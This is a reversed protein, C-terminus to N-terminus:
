TTSKSLGPAKSVLFGYIALSSVALLVFLTTGAYWDSPNDTLPYSFVLLYVIRSVLDTLLGFRLWIVAFLGLNILGAVITLWLHNNANIGTVMYLTAIAAVAWRERRLILHSVVLLFVFFLSATLADSLTMCLQRIMGSVGLLSDLDVRVLPRQGLSSAILTLVVKVILSALGLVCGALIDRGVMPNRGHGALLRTWSVIKTPWSRRLLPEVSLYCCWAVASYGLLLLLNAFTPIGGSFWGILSICFLISALRWAGNLDGIGLRLHRRAMAVAGLLCALSILDWVATSTTTSSTTQTKDINLSVPRGGFSAAEIRILGLSNGSLSAEWAARQEAYPSPALGPRVSKLQAPDFGAARLLVTWDPPPRDQTVKVEPLIQLRRLYGQMDLEVYVEGPVIRPPDEPTTWGWDPQLRRSSERYWFWYLPQGSTAHKFGYATYPLTENYGFQALLRHARGALVQPSHPLSIQRHAMFRDSLLILTLLSLLVAALWTAGKAPSLDGVEQISAVMEPSPTVGSALATALPDSSFARAVEAASSPRNRPDKELCRLIMRGATPDLDPVFNSLPMPGHRELKHDAPRPEEEFAKQGAFLEYLVLGLSYLDSRISMEGNVAQEPSMYAPTGSWEHRSEQAPVAVGFDTIRARGREDIMVNSPKLDRHLIGAEHIASLGACLQWAINLAKTLPLRGERLLSRLDNGRIFEMCLFPRGHAEGVDFVRCVYPHSVQRALRVEQHFRALVAGKRVMAEPLFKLAVTQGLKLDEVQYIEGMGGRGLFSLLRYRGALIDGPLLGPLGGSLLRPSHLEVTPESNRSVAKFSEIRTPASTGVVTLGCGPCTPDSEDLQASCEPCRAM